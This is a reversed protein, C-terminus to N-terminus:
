HMLFLEGGSVIAQPNQAWSEVTTRVKAYTGDITGSVAHSPILSKTLWSVVGCNEGAFEVVFMHFRGDSWRVVNGCWSGTKPSFGYIAADTPPPPLMKLM